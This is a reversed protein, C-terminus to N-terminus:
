NRPDKERKHEAPPPAPPAPAKAPAPPPAAAPAPPAPRPAQPVAAPPPVPAPPAIRAPAAFNAPPQQAPPFRHMSEQGPAPGQAPPAPPARRMQERPQERPQERMQEPARQPAAPEAARNVPPERAYSPQQERPLARPQEQQPSRQTDRPVDRPVDRPMDRQQLPAARGPSLTPNLAPGGTGRGQQPARAPADRHLLAPQTVEPRVARAEPLRAFGRRPDFSHMPSASAAPPAAVRVVPHQAAALNSQRPAFSDFARGNAMAGAPAELRVHERDGGERVRLGPRLLPPAGVVVAPSTGIPAPVILGARSGPPPPVFVGNPGQCHPGERGGPRGAVIMITLGMPPAIFLVGPPRWFGPVFVVLGDRNEYYPQTWMYGYRPARMWRGRAWIWQGDWAWYGGTWIADDYPMAYPEDVLMPPPAWPVGVAEPQEMPPDIYVSVVPESPPPVYNEDTPEDGPPYSDPYNGPYVGADPPAYADPPPQQYQQPPPQYQQPPPQYQPPPPPPPLYSPPPPPAQYQAQPPIPPYYPYPSPPPVSHAPQIVCAALTAALPFILIRKM